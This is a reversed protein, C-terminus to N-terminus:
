EARLRAVLRESEAPGILSDLLPYFASEQEDHHSHLRRALAGAAAGFAELDAAELAPALRDMIERLEVHDEQAKRGPSRAAGTRDFAYLESLAEEELLMHRRTGRLFHVLRKRARPLDGEDVLRVVDALQADLRRHDWTFFSSVSSFTRPDTRV